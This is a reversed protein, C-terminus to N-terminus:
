SFLARIASTQQAVTDLTVNHFIDKTIEVFFINGNELKPIKDFTKSLLVFALMPQCSQFVLRYLLLSQDSKDSAFNCTFFGDYTLTLIAVYLRNFETFQDGSKACNKLCNIIFNCIDTTMDSRKKFFIAFMNINKLLELQAIPYLHISDYVISLESVMNVILITDESEVRTFVKKFCDICYNVEADPVKHLNFLFLFVFSTVKDGIKSYDCVTKYVSAITDLQDWISKLAKTQQMPQNILKFRIFKTLKLIWLIFTDASSALEVDFLIIHVIASVNMTSFDHYLGIIGFSHISKIIAFVCDSNNNNVITDLLSLPMYNSYHDCRIKMYQVLTEMAVNFGNQNWHHEAFNAIISDKTLFVPPNVVDVTKHNIIFDNNPVVVRNIINIGEKPKPSLCFTTPVTTMICRDWPDIVLQIPGITHRSTGAKGRNLSLWDNHQSQFYYLNIAPLQYSANRLEYPKPMVSGHLWLIPLVNVNNVMKKDYIILNLIIPGNCSFKMNWLSKTNDDLEISLQGTQLHYSVKVHHTGAKLVNDSVTDNYVSNIVLCLAFNAPRKRRSKQKNVPSCDNYVQFYAM